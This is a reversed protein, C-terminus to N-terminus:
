TRLEKLQNESLDSVEQGDVICANRWGAHAPRSYMKNDCIKGQGSKGLVVLNEGSCAVGYKYGAIGGQYWLIKVSTRNERGGAGPQKDPNAKTANTTNKLVEM